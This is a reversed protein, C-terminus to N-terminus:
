CMAGTIRHRRIAAIRCQDARALLDHHSILAVGNLRGIVPIGNLAVAQLHHRISGKPPQQDGRVPYGPTSMNFTITSTVSRGADTPSRIRTQGAMLAFFQDPAEALPAFAQRLGEPDDRALSLADRVAPAM